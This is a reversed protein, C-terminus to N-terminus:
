VNLEEKTFSHVQNRGQRKAMLMATDAEALLSDFSSSNKNFSAVGLSITIELSDASTEFEPYAIGRRLREAIIKAEEIGTEPLLVIFEEGGYRGFIDINRIKSKSRNTLKVLVQDGVLHGYTDNVIKFHDIDFIMVSLQRNYRLARNFEVSGLELLHRRNYIGTLGDTISLQKVEEFLTANDIAVAVQDAFTSALRAHDHTFFKEQASEIALMGIVKERVILPVGMWSNIHNHPPTNFSAYAEKATDLIHPRESELVITNPNDGPVAFSLGLVDEINDWGHGGVIELHQDSLLQVTASDYEVVRKLQDLILDIAEKSNLTSAVITGAQRLIEAEHAQNQAAKFLRANQIAIAAQDAFAQAVKAEAKSYAGARLNDITLVGIVAGRAILPVGVWSKTKREFDGYNKFRHDGRIDPIILAERTQQVELFLEDDEVLYQNGLLLENAEFGQASVPSLYDGDVLFVCASQFDVVKQLHNLIDNLLNDVDMASTLNTLTNYLTEAERLRRTEVDFLRANELTIAIQDTVATLSHQDENTFPEQSLKPGIALVGILGSKSKLGLFIEINLDKIEQHESHWLANFQPLVEIDKTTLIPAGDVLSTVIPNSNRFVIEHGSSYGKHAVLKYGSNDQLRLFIAANRVSLTSLIEDLIFETSLRLDLQQTAYKNIRQLMESTDYEGRFFLRDLTQQARSRLPEVLLATLIAVSFSLLALELGTSTKVINIALSIFLFYTAGLLTSPISYVLGRRLVLSVDLLQHRLIAYAVIFAALANFTIDVPYVGLETANTLSGGFILLIVFLLYKLRNKHDEDRSKRFERILDFASISIFLIWSVSPLGIAPGYNNVLQGQEIYADAVVLGLANFVQTMIYATIGVKLWNSRQRMLLTQVFAFFALPMAMSGLIMFRNWFLPTGFGTNVRTMFSGFSWIIMALLYYAFHTQVRNLNQRWVLLVLLSSYAILAALAVFAFYNFSDM